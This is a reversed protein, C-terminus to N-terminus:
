IFLPSFTKSGLWSIVNDIPQKHFFVSFMRYIDFFRHKSDVSISTPSDNMTQTDLQIRKSSYVCEGNFKNEIVVVIYFGGGIENPIVVKISKPLYTTDESHWESSVKGVVGGMVKITHHSFSLNKDGYKIILNIKESGNPVNDLVHVIRVIM